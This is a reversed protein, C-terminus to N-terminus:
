WFLKLFQQIIELIKFCGFYGGQFNWPPKIMVVGWWLFIILTLINGFILVFAADIKQAIHKHKLLYAFIRVGLDYSDLECNLLSNDPDAQLKIEVSVKNKEFKEHMEVLAKESLSFLYPMFFQLIKTTIFVIVVVKIIWWLASLIASTIIM